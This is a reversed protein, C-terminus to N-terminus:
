KATGTERQRMIIGIAAERASRKMEPYPLHSREPQCLLTPVLRTFLRTEDNSLGYRSQTRLLDYHAVISIILPIGLVVAIVTVVIGATFSTTTFAAIAVGVLSLLLFLCFLIQIM